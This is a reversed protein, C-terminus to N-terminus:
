DENVTDSLIDVSPSIYVLKRNGEVVSDIPNVVSHINNNINKCTVGNGGTTQLLDCVSKIADHMADSSSYTGNNSGVYASLHPDVCVRSVELEGAPEAIINEETRGEIVAVQKSDNINDSLPLSEDSLVNVQIRDGHILSDKQNIVKQQQYTSGQDSSEILDKRPNIGPATNVLDEEIKVTAYDPGSNDHVKNNIKTYKRVDDSTNVNQLRM